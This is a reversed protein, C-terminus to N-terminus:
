CTLGKEIFNRVATFDIEFTNSCFNGCNMCVRDYLVNNSEMFSINAEPKVGMKAVPVSLQRTMCFGCFYSKVKEKNEKLFDFYEQAVEDSVEPSSRTAIKM